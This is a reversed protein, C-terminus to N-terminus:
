MGKSRRRPPLLSFFPPSFPFHRDVATPTPFFPPPAKVVNLLKENKDEFSSFSTPSPSPPSLTVESQVIRFSFFFSPPPPLPFFSSRKREEVVESKAVHDLPPPFSFPFSSLHGQRKTRRQKLPFFPFLLPLSFRRGCNQSNAHCDLPFFFLFFFPLPSFPATRLRVRRPDQFFPLSRSNQKHTEDAWSTFLPPFLPPFAWILLSM